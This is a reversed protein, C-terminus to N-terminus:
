HIQHEELFSYKIDFILAEKSSYFLVEGGANDQIEMFSFLYLQPLLLHIGCHIKM